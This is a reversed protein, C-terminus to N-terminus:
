DPSRKRQRGHRKPTKMPLPPRHRSSPPRLVYKGTPTQRIQWRDDHVQHHCRSCLLVLNDIDTPGDAEWPIVHHAQCWAPDAGCGVCRRDRAILALRQAPTALRKGLGVWLPRGKTDFIAPVVKGQCALEKFLAVPVPTGDALTADRIRQNGTDYHAILLLDTRPTKSKKSKKDGGPRCVLEALADAMRQETTPREKPNEERWLQNTKATLMNKIRTGTVPDFRGWLVTMGDTPDTKIGAKRARRQAELKSLGDDESKQQEHQRATRAFVDVPERKARDVLEQEDIGARGATDTIIKTHGFTIEGDEFAKRTRPLDKLKKAVEVEVRSGNSSQGSEERLTREAAKQGMRRSYEAAARARVAEAQAKARSASRMQEKLGALSAKKVPVSPLVIRVHNGAM